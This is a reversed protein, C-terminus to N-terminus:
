RRRHRPNKLRSKKQKKKKQLCDISMILATGDGAILEIMVAALGFRPLNAATPLERRFRAVLLATPCSPEDSGSELGSSGGDDSDCSDVADPGGTLSEASLKGRARGGGGGSCPLGHHRRRQRPRRRRAQSGVVDVQRRRRGPAPLLM